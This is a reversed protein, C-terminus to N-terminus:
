ESLYIKEYSRYMSCYFVPMMVLLGLMLPITAVIFVVMLVIGYLLFPLINKLCGQFSAKMASFIPMGQLVILAPAFWFAMSLPLMLAFGILMNLVLSTPNQEFAEANGTLLDIYVSGMVLMMIAISLLSLVVSLGILSGVRNSFGEFLYKVDFKGGKAVADCGLLLGGTWVFTTLMPVIQGVVPILNLVMMVVFGVVMTLVWAGASQKFLNWGDGIWSVGEGAPRSQPGVYQKSGVEVEVNVDSEPAQYINAENNEM